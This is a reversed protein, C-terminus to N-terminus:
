PMEQYYLNGVLTYRTRPFHDMTEGLRRYTSEIFNPTGVNFNEFVKSKPNQSVLLVNFDRQRLTAILSQVPAVTEQTELGPIQIVEFAHFFQLTASRHQEARDVLLVTNSQPFRRRLEAGATLAGEMEAHFLIPYSIILLPVASAIYLGLRFLVNDKTRSFPALSALTYCGCILIAPIVIPVYRRSAWYLMPSNMQKLLLPALYAAFCGLLLLGVSAGRGSCAIALAGWFSLIFVTPGVMSGLRHFIEEDMKRVGAVHAPELYVVKPFLQTRYVLGWTLILTILLFFLMRGTDSMAFDRLYHLAKVVGRQLLGVYQLQSILTIAILFAVLHEVFPLARSNSLLYLRSNLWAESYTLVGCGLALLSAYSKVKTSPRTTGHLWPIILIFSFLVLVQDIRMLVAACASFIAISLSLVQPTASLTRDEDSKVGLAIALHLLSFLIFFQSPVESYTARGFWLQPPSMLLLTSALFAWHAALFIRAVQFFTFLALICYASNSYFASELDGLLMGFALLYSPGKPFNTYLKELDNLHIYAGAYRWALGSGKNESGPESETPIQPIGLLSRFEPSDLLEHAALSLHQTGTQALTAAGAVYVAPDQSAIVIKSPLRYLILAALLLLAPYIWRSGTRTADTEVLSNAPAATCYLLGLLLCYGGFAISFGTATFREITALVAAVVVTFLTLLGFSLIAQSIPDFSRYLHRRSLLLTLTCAALFLALLM